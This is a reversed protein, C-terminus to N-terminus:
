PLSPPQSMKKISPIVAVEPEPKILEAAYHVTLYYRKTEENVAVGLGMTTFVPHVLAKYHVGFYPQEKMYFSWTSKIAKILDDTCDEKDCKYYGYGVSESFTVRNVNRFKVGRDAFWKEIGSYNYYWDSPKRKHDISNQLAAQESWAQATATLDADLVYPKLEKSTRLENNRQLRTEEVEALDINGAAAYAPALIMALTIVYKKRSRTPM